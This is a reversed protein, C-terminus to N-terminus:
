FVSEVQVVRPEVVFTSKTLWDLSDTGRGGNVTVASGFAAAIIATDNDQGLDIKVQGAFGPSLGNVVTLADGGKGLQINTEQAVAVADLVVEDNAMGTQIQLKGTSLGTLTIYGKKDGTAIKTKGSVTTGNLVDLDDSGKMSKFFFNGTITAGDLTTVSDGKQNNVIVGQGVTSGKLTFTDTGDKNNVHLGGTITSSDIVVSTDGKQANDVKVNGGVSSANLLSFSQRGMLNKVSLHSGVSTADLTLGNDGRGGDFRLTGAVTVGTMSVTDNGDGMRLFVSDTLGALSASAGGNITTGGEGTVTVEGGLGVTIAISNDARDGTIMLDGGDTMVAVVNGSLLLRGELLELEACDQPTVSSM